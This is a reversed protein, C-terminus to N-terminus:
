TGVQEAEVSKKEAEAKKREAKLKSKQVCDVNWRDNHCWSHTAFHITM